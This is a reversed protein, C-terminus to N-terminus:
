TDTEIVANRMPSTIQEGLMIEDKSTESARSIDDDSTGLKVSQGGSKNRGKKRRNM